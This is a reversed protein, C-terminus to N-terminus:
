KRSQAIEEGEQEPMVVERQEILLMMLLPSQERAEGLRNEGKEADWGPDRLCWAQVLEGRIPNKAGGAERALRKPQAGGSKGRGRGSRNMVSFSILLQTLESEELWPHATKQKATEGGQGTYITTKLEWKERIFRGIYNLFEGRKFPKCQLRGSTNPTGYRLHPATFTITFSLSSSM